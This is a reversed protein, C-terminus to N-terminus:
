LLCRFRGKLTGICREICNRASAHTSNYRAEPSNEAANLVATLLWPQLPYGSDGLLFCNREGGNYQNEMYNSIASQRWIFAHSAGGFNANISLINLDVDCIIQVYKSHFGKRNFYAHEEQAPQLIAIHTGDVAGIVCPMGFREMFSAEINNKEDQTDPFRIWTPAMEELASAVETICNSLSQQSIAISIEEGIGRQYSGTAFFRLVALSIAISIEEGIGRQYSGTAFFRLVALIRLHVPLRTNRIGEATFPTLQDILIQFVERTVRFLRRFQVNPLQVPDNTDRLVRRERNFPRRRENDEELEAFYNYVALM